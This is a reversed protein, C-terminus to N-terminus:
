RYAYVMKAGPNREVLLLAQIYSVCEGICDDGLFVVFM